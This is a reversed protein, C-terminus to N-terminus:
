LSPVDEVSGSSNELPQFHSGTLAFRLGWSALRMKVSPSNAVVASRHVTGAIITKGSEHDLVRVRIVDAEPVAAFLRCIAADADHLAQQVFRSNKREPSEDRDWPHVDRATWTVELQCPAQYLELGDSRVEGRTQLALAKQITREFRTRRLRRILDQFAHSM